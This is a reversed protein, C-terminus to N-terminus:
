KYSGTKQVVSIPRSLKYLDCLRAIFDKCNDPIDSSEFSALPCSQLLSAILIQHSHAPHRTVRTYLKRIEQERDSEPFIKDIKCVETM